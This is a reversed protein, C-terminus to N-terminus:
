TADLPTALKSSELIWSLVAAPTHMCRSSERFKLGNGWQFTTRARKEECPPDMIVGVFRVHAERVCLSAFDVAVAVAM